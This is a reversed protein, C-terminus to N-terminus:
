RVAETATLPDGTLLLRKALQPRLALPRAITCGYGAVIGVRVHPDGLPATESM